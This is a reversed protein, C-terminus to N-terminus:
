LASTAGSLDDYFSVLHEAEVRWNRTTEVLERGHRGMQASEVPNDLLFSAQRVIADVDLPDALLGAGAPLVLERWLPYDSALVPLGAAMYEFMKTPQSKVHNPEPLFLVVGITSQALLEALEPRELSGVFEAYRWGPHAEMQSLLEPPVTGALTLRADHSDGLREIAELMQFVGRGESIGGIFVLQPSSRKADDVSAWQDLIPFNQIVATRENHFDAAIAPTATVIASATHDVLSVLWTSARRAAKRLFSPLYTKNTMSAAIHEHSDFVVKIGLLRLAPVAPILEPDHLHVVTPRMRVARLVARAVGISMRVLRRDSRDYAVVPFAAHPPAEETAILRVDYGAEALSTCQKEFIRPDGAPHASSVHVVRVKSRRTDRTM